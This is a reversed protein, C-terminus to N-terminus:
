NAGHKHLIGDEYTPDTPSRRVLLDGQPSGMHHFGRRRVLDPSGRVTPLDRTGNM